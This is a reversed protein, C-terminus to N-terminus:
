VSLDISRDISRHISLYIHILIVMPAAYGSKSTVPRTIVTLQSAMSARCTGARRRGADQDNWRDQTRCLHIHINMYVSM